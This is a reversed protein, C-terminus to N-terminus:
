PISTTTHWTGFTSGKVNPCGLFIGFSFMDCSHICILSLPALSAKTNVCSVCTVYRYIYIYTYICQLSIGSDADRRVPFVPFLIVPGSGSNM